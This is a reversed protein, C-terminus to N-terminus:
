ARDKFMASQVKVRSNAVRNCLCYVAPVFDL